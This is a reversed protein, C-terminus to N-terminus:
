ISQNTRYLDVFGINTTWARSSSASSSGVLRQNNNRNFIFPFTKSAYAQMLNLISRSFAQYWRNLFTNLWFAFHKGIIPITITLQRIRPILMRNNAFCSINTLIQQRQSVSNDGQQLTPQLSSMLTRWSGRIQVIIQVFKHKTKISSCGSRTSQQEVAEDLLRHIDSWNRCMINTAIFTLDCGCSKTTTTLPILRYFIVFYSKMQNVMFSTTITPAPTEPNVTPYRKALFPYSTKIIIIEYKINARMSEM